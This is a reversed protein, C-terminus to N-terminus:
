IFFLVQISCQTDHAHIFYRHLLLLIHIDEDTMRKFDITKIIKLNFILNTAIEEIISRIGNNHTHLFM